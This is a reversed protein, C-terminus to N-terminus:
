NDAENLDVFTHTRAGCDCPSFLDDGVPFPEGFKKIAGCFNCEAFCTEQPM